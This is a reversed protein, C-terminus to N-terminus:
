LAPNSFRFTLQPARRRHVATAVEARLWVAARGLAAKAESKEADGTVVVIFHTADPAPVVAVVSLESLLPEGSEGALVLDLIRRVQEALQLAKRDAPKVPEPHLYRPDVGDEPGTDSCLPSRDEREPKKPKM